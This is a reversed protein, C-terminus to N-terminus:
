KVEMHLQGLLELMAQQGAGARLVALEARVQDLVDKSWVARDTDTIMLFYGGDSGNKSSGIPLHYNIRLTRVALKIERPNLGTIRSIEAITITNAHGRMYRITRLVTKERGELTLDLPGGPYGMILNLITADLRAIAAESSEPFL